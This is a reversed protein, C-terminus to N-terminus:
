NLVWLNDEVCMSHFVDHFSYVHLPTGRVQYEKTLSSSKLSGEKIV